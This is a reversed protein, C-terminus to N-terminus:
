IRKGQYEQRQRYDPPKAPGTPDTYVEFRRGPLNAIWYVPIGARAYIRRKTSRDRRLSTDAVEM